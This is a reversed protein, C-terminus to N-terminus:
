QYSTLLLLKIENRIKVKDQLRKQRIDRRSGLFHDQASRM